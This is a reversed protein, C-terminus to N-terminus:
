EVNQVQERIKEVREKGTLVLGVVPLNSAKSSITNLERQVEQLLFDIKKGVPEREIILGSLGGVHINLRVVEEHIDGKLASNDRESAGRQNLPLEGGDRSALTSRLQTRVKRAERKLGASVKRLYHLQDKIDLKLYRGERDRSRELKKLAAEVTKLVQSSEGKEIVEGESFRFLDPLSSLLSLDMEGKLGLRKKARQLSKIYQELLGQDLELRRGRGMLAFRTVFIEVRGRSIKQRVRKRMEEEISLYSRPVRLQIDLHRHNLTRMQVTVKAHRGQSSAEGYGTMSKM